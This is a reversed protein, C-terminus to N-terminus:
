PNMEGEGPSIRSVVARLRSNSFALVVAIATLLTEYKQLEPNGAKGRTMKRVMQSCLWVVVFLIGIATVSRLTTGVVSFNPPRLTYSASVCGLGHCLKSLNGPCDNLHALWEEEFRTKQKTLRAASHRILWRSLPEAEDYLEAAILSCLIGVFIAILLEM